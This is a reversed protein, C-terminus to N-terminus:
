GVVHKRVIALIEAQAEKSLSKWRANVLELGDDKAAGTIREMDAQRVHGLYYKREVEESHGAIATVAWPDKLLERLDQVANRRLTQFLDEWPRVGAKKLVTRFRSHQNSDSRRDVEAEPVIFDAEGRGGRSARLLDHLSPDLPVIREQGTKTISEPLTLTRRQWDIMHWRVALAEGKRLAGLRQLSLFCRWGDNRCGALITVFLERNVYHWSRVIKKPQTRIRAFPNVTLVGQHVAENLICRVHRCYHAVTSSSLVREVEHGGQKVKRPANLSVVWEAAVTSTIRDIKTATGVFAMFKDAAQRYTQKGREGLDPKLTIFTEIWEAMSPVRGVDAVQPHATLEVALRECLVLAQRRSLESKAGLSKAKRRGLRDYFNAQWYRGNSALTVKPKETMVCM